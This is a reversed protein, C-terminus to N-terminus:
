IRITMGDALSLRYIRYAPILGILLGSVAVLIMLGFETASPGRLSIFLGLGQELWPKAVGLGAYLAAAGLVIGLLTLFTAEGLLLAFVHSPRAGLARLVAMERRRESLSTLLAILMAALGMIVVLASIAILTKEAGAVMDWVDLLTAGPLIATLPEPQSENLQRQLFLAQNRSKLGLLVATITRPSSANELAGHRDQDHDRDQDNRGASQAERQKAKQMAAALPDAAAGASEGAHVADMGELSVHIARDVPTGTRALIGVVRFPHDKHLAFAIDGSGHAIVIEQGLRYGLAAAVDAGLVTGSADTFSEGEVLELKRDQGFRFRDFYDQTTGLVRFGRHSDGLSIPITWAVEPLTAIRRYSDWSVNNTADGIRFVSSLLLHVPSSRAGVILDTGSVSNAFAERSEQRIREVGLLLAVSLAISLVTLGATLRRNRLSKIALPLIM